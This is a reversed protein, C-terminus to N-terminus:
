MSLMSFIFIVADVESLFDFFFALLAEHAFAFDTDCKGVRGFEIFVFRFEVFTVYM